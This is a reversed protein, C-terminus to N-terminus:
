VSTRIAGNKSERLIILTFIDDVRLGCCDDNGRQLGGSENNGYGSCVVAFESVGVLRELIVFVAGLIFNAL